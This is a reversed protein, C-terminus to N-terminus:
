TLHTEKRSEHCLVVDFKMECLIFTWVCISGFLFHSRKHKDQYLAELFTRQPGALEMDKERLYQM